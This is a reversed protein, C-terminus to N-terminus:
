EGKAKIKIIGGIRVIEVDKIKDIKELGSALAEHLKIGWIGFIFVRVKINILFIM